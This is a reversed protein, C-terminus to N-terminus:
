NHYSDDLLDEKVYFISNIQSCIFNEKGGTLETQYKIVMIIFIIGIMGERHGIFKQTEGM